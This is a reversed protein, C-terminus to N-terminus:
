VYIRLRRELLQTLAGVASTMAYYMVGITLFVAFNQFTSSIVMQASLFLEQVTVLSVLASNKTLAVFENGLPPLMRLLAQPFVVFRLTQRHSLGLAKAAEVQGRDISQVAGRVIETQYSGSYFALTGVAAVMAPVEIGVQPFAYYVFFLQVVFPTGRIVSVYTAAAGRLLRRRSLKAFGGVLGCVVGLALALAVVEITRAAGALLFPLAKVITELGLATM